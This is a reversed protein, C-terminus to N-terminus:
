IFKMHNLTVKQFYVGFSKIQNLLSKFLLTTHINEKNVRITSSNSKTRIGRHGPSLTALARSIPSLYAISLYHLLEFNMLEIRRIITWHVYSISKHYM